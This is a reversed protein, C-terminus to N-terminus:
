KGRKEWVERTQGPKRYRGIMKYGRRTLSRRAVEADDLPTISNGEIIRAILGSDLIEACLIKEDDTKM